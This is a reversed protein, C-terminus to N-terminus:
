LSVRYLIWEEMPKAGFGEYFRQASTNWKLVVFDVRGCGNRQAEEVCKEFLAKGAGKGRHEELVFIDELYLTPKALFSSYAYYFMAYGIAKKEEFALFAEYRRNLDQKLRQKAGDDPPELHEYYALECILELLQEIHDISAKKIMM